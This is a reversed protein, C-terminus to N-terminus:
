TLILKFFCTLIGTKSRILNQQKSKELLSNANSIFSHLKAIQSDLDKPAPRVPKINLSHDSTFGKQNEYLRTSMKKIKKRKFFIKNIIKFYHIM